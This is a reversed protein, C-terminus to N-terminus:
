DRRRREIRRPAPEMAAAVVIATVLLPLGLILLLVPLVFLTMVEAFSSAQPSRKKGPDATLESADLGQAPFSECNAPTQVLYIVAGLERCSTVRHFSQQDGTRGQGGEDNGDNEDDREASASAARNAVLSSGGARRRCV